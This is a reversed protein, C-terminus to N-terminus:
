HPFFTVCFVTVFSWVWMQMINLAKLSLHAFLAWCEFLVCCRRCQVTQHVDFRPGFPHGRTVCVSARTQTDKALRQADDELFSSELRAPCCLASALETYPYFYSFLSILRELDRLLREGRSRFIAYCGVAVVVRWCPHFIWLMCRIGIILSIITKM